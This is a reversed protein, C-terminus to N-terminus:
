ATMKLDEFPATDYKNDSRISHITKEIWEFNRIHNESLVTMQMRITTETKKGLEMITINLANELKSITELTLNESGKVIKSVQQPTVDLLEALEKKSMGREDLANLVKLAILQSKRLWNRNNRRWEASEHYKSPKDSVLELFKQRNSSM